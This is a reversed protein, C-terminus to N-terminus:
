DLLLTTNVKDNINPQKIMESIKSWSFLLRLYFYVQYIYLIVGKEKGGKKEAQTSLRVLGFLSTFGFWKIGFLSQVLHPIFVKTIM